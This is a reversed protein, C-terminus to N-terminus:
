QNIEEETIRNGEKMKNMLDAAHQVASEHLRTISLSKGVYSYCYERGVDGSTEYSFLQWEQNDELQMKVLAFMDDTEVSTQIKDGVTELIGSFGKLIAPTCCRKVIGKIVEMQDRGRQFDGEGFSYRERAFALAEAGNLHNMGEDYHYGGANFTYKSYVDVGDLADVINVLSTFNVRAYYNIDIGYIYNLTDISCQVGYIGSHTLKDKSNGSIGPLITYADRPTTVMLIQHEKPNVTMLINVDSRSKTTIDGYTDIGSVFVTFTDKTIDFDDEVHKEVVDKEVEFEVEEIIRIEESFVYQNEEMSIEDIVNLYPGNIIMADIEGNMLAPYLVQYDQYEKWAIGDHEENLKIQAQEILEKDNQFQIGCQKGVIDSISEYASDKKVVVCVKETEAKNNETVKNIASTTTGIYYIGAVLVAITALSVLKGLWHIGKAFQMLLVVLFVGALAGAFAMWWKRPLVDMRLLQVLLVASAVFQIGCMVLGFIQMKSLKKM